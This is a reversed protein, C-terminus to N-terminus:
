QVVTANSHSATLVQVAVDHACHFRSRNAVLVALALGQTNGMANNYSSVALRFAQSSADSPTNEGVPPFSEFRM